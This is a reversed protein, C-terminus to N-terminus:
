GNRIANIERVLKENSLLLNKNVLRLHQNENNIAEELLKMTNKSKDGCDFLPVIKSDHVKKHCERCLPIIINSYPNLAKPLAHHCSVKKKNGCMMCSKSRIKEDKFYIMGKPLSKKQKERLSYKLKHIREKFDLKQKM